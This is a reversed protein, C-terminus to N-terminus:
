GETHRGRTDAPLHDYMQQVEAALDLLQFVAKNVLELVEREKDSFTRAPGKPGQPGQVQQTPEPDSPEGDAGRSPVPGDAEDKGRIPGRTSPTQWVAGPRASERLAGCDVCWHIDGLTGVAAFYIHECPLGKADLKRQAMRLEQQVRDLENLADTLCDGAAIARATGPSEHEEQLWEAALQRLQKIRAPEAARRRGLELLLTARDHRLAAQEDWLAQVVDGITKVDFGLHFTKRFIDVVLEAAQPDFAHPDPQGPVYGEGTYGESSRDSM